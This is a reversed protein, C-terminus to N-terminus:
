KTLLSALPRLAVYAAIGAAQQLRTVDVPQRHAVCRTVDAPQLLLM